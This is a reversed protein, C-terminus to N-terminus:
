LKKEFFFFFFFPKKTNTCGVEPTLSRRYVMVEDVTANISESRQTLSGISGLPGKIM